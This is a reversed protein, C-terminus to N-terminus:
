TTRRTTITPRYRPAAPFFLVKRRVAAGSRRIAFLDTFQARRPHFYDAGAAGAISSFFGAANGPPSIAV